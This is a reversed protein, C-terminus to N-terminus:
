PFRCNPCATPKHSPKYINKQNKKIPRCLVVNGLATKPNKQHLVRHAWFDSTLFEIKWTKPSNQAKKHQLTKSVPERSRRLVLIGVFKSMRRVPVGQMDGAFFILFIDLVRNTTKGWHPVMFCGFVLFYVGLSSLLLIKTDCPPTYVGGHHRSGKSVMLCRNLVCMASFPM